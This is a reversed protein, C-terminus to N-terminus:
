RKRIQAETEQTHAPKGTSIEPASQKALLKNFMRVNDATNMLKKFNLFEEPSLNNGAVTALKSIEEKANLGLKEMEAKPDPITGMVVNAYKGLIGTFTEQSMNKERAFETFEKLMPDDESFKVNELEPIELDYKEPAGTFGGFKKTLENYAKAQESASKYKENLWEPKEGEGPRGDEWFWQAQDGDSPPTGEGQQGEQGEVGSPNGEKDKDGGENGSPPTGAGALDALDEM